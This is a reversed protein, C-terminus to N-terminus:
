RVLQQTITSGGQVIRGARANAIAAAIVRVPDFGSHQLFHRDEATLVAQLILPSIQTLPVDTRQELFLSFAAHDQGDYITTLQAGTSLTFAHAERAADAAAQWLLYGTAASAAGLVFLASRLFRRTTIVSSLKVSVAM